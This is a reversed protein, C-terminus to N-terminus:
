AVRRLWRLRAQIKHEYYRCRLYFFRVWEPLNLDGMIPHPAYANQQQEPPWENVMTRLRKVGMRFAAIAVEPDPREDPFAQPPMRRPKPLKGMGLAVHRLLQQKPTANRSGNGEAAQEDLTNAVIDLVIGLHSVIQALSWKGNPARHWREGDVGDLSDVIMPELADLQRNVKM